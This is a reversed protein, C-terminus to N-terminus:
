RLIALMHAMLCRMIASTTTDTIAEYSLLLLTWCFFSQAIPWKNFIALDNMWIVFLDNIPVQIIMGARSCIAQQFLISINKKYLLIKLVTWRQVIVIVRLWVM